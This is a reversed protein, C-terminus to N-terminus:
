SKRIMSKARRRRYRKLFNEIAKSVANEREDNAKFHGSKMYEAVVTAALKSLPIMGERRENEACLEDMRELMAREVPDKTSLARKARGSNRGNEATRGAEANKLGKDRLVAESYHSGSRWASLLIKRGAEQYEVPLETLRNEAGELFRLSLGAFSDAFTAPTGGNGLLGNLIQRVNEFQDKGPSYAPFRVRVSAPHGDLVFEHRNVFGLADM